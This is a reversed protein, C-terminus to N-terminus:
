QNFNKKKITYTLGIISVAIISIWSYISDSTNPNKTNDKVEETTNIVPEVYETGKIDTITEPAKNSEAIIKGEQNVIIVKNDKIELKYDSSPTNEVEFSTFYKDNEAITVYSTQSEGEVTVTGDLTLKPTAYDASAQGIEIGNGGDKEGNDKMILSKVTVDGGNVLVAGYKCNEIRVNDITLKGGNHAQLGYKRSDKITVNSITVDGGNKSTIITANVQPQLQSSTDGTWKITSGNGVITVKYGIEIAETVDISASESLTITSCSNNLATKLGEFNSINDCNDAAKVNPIAVVVIAAVILFLIKKM